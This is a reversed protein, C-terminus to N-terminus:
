KRLFFILYSTNNSRVERYDIEQFYPSLLTRLEKSSYKVFFRPIPSEDLGESSGEIMALVFLGHAELLSSIKELTPIFENRPVHILSLIAFVAGYKDSTQFNQINTQITPLGKELTRRVMETSPDICTINYGQFSLWSALVGTGSGIDLIKTRPPVYKLVLDPLFNAFPFRNWNEAYADYCSSNIIDIQGTSFTM